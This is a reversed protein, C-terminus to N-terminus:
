SPAVGGQEARALARHVLFTLWYSPERKQGFEWDGWATWISEPMFRGAIDSKDKVIRAMEQLRPDSCVSPFLTLVDLLHLIDYWVLPAKLKTFDTGMFFMYPHRTRREGWASLLTEAATRGVEGDRWKPNQALVKLMALNAFPCPDDKRGPGRFKGLEPSVACPFGNARELGMLHKVAAQVQSDQELGFKLLAYVVLPADCLAWAFDDKGTGGFHVPVNTLVQFPGQASQHKVIRRIVKDMGPDDVRLGIDALFTLQHLPHGASKHSSLVKVPWDSLGKVLGKVQPDALMAQRARRVHPNSARQKLLDVRTRYEVWPPGQLLWEMTADM